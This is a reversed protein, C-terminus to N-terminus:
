RSGRALTCLLDLRRWGMSEHSHFFRKISYEYLLTINKKNMETIQFVLSGRINIVRIFFFVARYDRKGAIEIETYHSLSPEAM